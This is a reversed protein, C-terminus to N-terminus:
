CANRLECAYIRNNINMILLFQVFYKISVINVMQPPARPYELFMCWGLLSVNIENNHVSGDINSFPFYRM